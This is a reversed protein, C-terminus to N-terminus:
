LPRGNEDTNHLTRNIIRCVHLMVASVSVERFAPSLHSQGTKFDDPKMRELEELATRYICDHPEQTTTFAAAMLAVDGASDSM